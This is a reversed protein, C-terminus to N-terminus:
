VEPLHRNRSTRCYAGRQKYYHQRLPTTANLPPVFRPNIVYRVLKDFVPLACDYGPYSSSGGLVFIPAVAPPDDLSLITFFLRSGARCFGSEAM